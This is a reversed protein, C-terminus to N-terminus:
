IAHEKRWSIRGLKWNNQLCLDKEESPIMKSVIGDNVWFYNKKTSLKSRSEDTVYKGLKWGNQIYNNIENKSIRKNVNDKNIWKSNKIIVPDKFIKIKQSYKTKITESTKRRTEESVLRGTMRKRLIEKQYEPIIKGKNRISNEKKWEETHRYGGSGDGGDTMNVLIGTGIDIRGYQKILKIEEKCADEWSINDLLLEYRYGYKSVINKWHKNRDFKAEMRKLTLGIGIYFIQNTDLRIHQYVIAM